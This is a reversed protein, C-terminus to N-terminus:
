LLGSDSATLASAGQCGLCDGRSPLWGNTLRVPKSAFPISAERGSVSDSGNAIQSSRHSVAFGSAVISTTLRSSSISREVAVVVVMLRAGRSRCHFPACSHAQCAFVVKTLTSALSAFIKTLSSASAVPSGDADAM